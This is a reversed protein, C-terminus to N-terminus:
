SFAKSKVVTQLMDNDCLVACYGFYMFHIITIIIPVCELSKSSLYIPYGPMFSLVVLNIGIESITSDLLITYLVLLSFTFSTPHPQLSM